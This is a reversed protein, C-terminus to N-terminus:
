VPESICPNKEIWVYYLAVIIASTSDVSTSGRIHLALQLAILSNEVIHHSTLTPVGLEWM